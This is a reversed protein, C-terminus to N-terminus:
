ECSYSFNTKIVQHGMGKEDVTYEDLAQQAEQTSTLKVDSKYKQFYTRIDIRKTGKYQAEVYSKFAEEAKVRFDYAIFCRGTGPYYVFESIYRIKGYHAGDPNAAMFFYFGDATTSKVKFSTVSLITFALMLMIGAKRIINPKLM